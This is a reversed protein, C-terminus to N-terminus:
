AKAKKAIATKAAASSCAAKQAPTCEGSREDGSSRRTAAAGEVCDYKTKLCNTKGYAATNIFRGSKTCYQVETLSVKGSKQCISKRYYSVQGTGPAVKQIIGAEAAAKVAAINADRSSSQPSQATVHTISISGFFLLLLLLHKM